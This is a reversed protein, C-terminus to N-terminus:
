RGSRGRRLAGPVFELTPEVKVPVAEVVKVPEAAPIPASEVSTMSVPRVASPAGQEETQSAPKVENGVEKGVPASAVNAPPPALRTVEVAAPVAPAAEAVQARAAPAHAKLAVAEVSAVDKVPASPLSVPKKNAAMMAKNQLKPNPEVLIGQEKMRGILSDVQELGRMAVENGSDRKLAMKYHDRSEVVKEELMLALGINAHAESEGCGGRHFAMMAEDARGTRALVMGLNNHARSHDFKIALAQRYNQEADRYKGQLYQTYGMDCFIEPNGPSKQLADRFLQESEQFKGAAAAAVAMRHTLEPNSPDLMSAERYAQFAEASRGQGELTRGMAFQMEADEAKSVPRKPDYEDAFDDDEAKAKPKSKTSSKAFLSKIGGSQQAGAAPAAALGSTSTKGGTASCGSAAAAVIAAALGLSTRRLAFQSIFTTKM